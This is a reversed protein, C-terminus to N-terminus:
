MFLLLISIVQSCLAWLKQIKQFQTVHNRYLSFMLLYHSIFTNALYCPSVRHEQSVQIHTECSCWIELNGECIGILRRLHQDDKAVEENLKEVVTGKQIWSFIQRLIQSLDLFHQLMQQCIETSPKDKFQVEPDDLLRRPGSERKLLDIVTENYIELASIRLIFDREPTQQFQFSFFIM